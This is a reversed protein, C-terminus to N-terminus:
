LMRDEKSEMAAMRNGSEVAGGGAKKMPMKAGAARAESIGIAIAQKPNSVVPGKKSGSHLKGAQFEGMVKGVKAAGKVAGGKKMAVSGPTTTAAAQVTPSASSSTPALKSAAILDRNRQSNPNRAQANEVQRQAYAAANKNNYATMPNVPPNAKAAAQAAQDAKFQQQIPAARADMRATAASPAYKSVSQSTGVNAGYKQQNPTLTASKVTGGMSYKTKTTNKFGDM